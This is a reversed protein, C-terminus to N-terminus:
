EDAKNASNLMDMEDFEDLELTAQTKLRRTNFKVYEALVRREMDAKSVKGLGSLINRRRLTLFENLSQSWDKM